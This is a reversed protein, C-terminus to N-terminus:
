KLQTHKNCLVIIIIKIDNKKQCKARVEELRSCVAQKNNVQKTRAYVMMMIDYIKRLIVRSCNLNQTRRTRSRTLANSSFQFPM